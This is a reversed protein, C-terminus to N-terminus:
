TLGVLELDEVLGVEMVEGVVIAIKITEAAVGVPMHEHEAGSALPNRQELLSM